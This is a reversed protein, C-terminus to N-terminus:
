EEEFFYRYSYLIYVIKLQVGRRTLDAIVSVIPESAFLLHLTGPHSCIALAHHSSKHSIVGKFLPRQVTCVLSCVCKYIYIPSDVCINRLELVGNWKTM